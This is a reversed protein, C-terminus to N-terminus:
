KWYLDSATKEEVTSRIFRKLDAAAPVGEGMSIDTDDMATTTCMMDYAASYVTDWEKMTFAGASEALILENNSTFALVHFSQAQQIERPMPNIILDRNDGRLVLALSMSTLTATMPISASLLSLIATQLLAPLVPLNQQNKHM